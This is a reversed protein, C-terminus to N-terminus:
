TKEYIIKGEKLIDEMFFSGLDQLENIEKPTYVITDLAGVYDDKDSLYYDKTYLLKHIKDM